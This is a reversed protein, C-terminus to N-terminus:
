KAIVKAEIVNSIGTCGNADTVAVSYSGASKVVISPSTEGGPSWKFTGGIDENLNLNLSDGEFFELPGSSNIVPTPNKRVVVKFPSSSLVGGNEDIVWVKYEGSEYVTISRTTEATPSWLYQSGFSATLTVSSGACFVSPGEAIILTDLKPAQELILEPAKENEQKEEPLIEPEVLKSNNEIAKMTEANASSDIKISSPSISDSKIRDAETIPSTSISDGVIENSIEQITDAFSEVNEKESSLSDTVPLVSEKVEVKTSISDKVENSNRKITYPKLESTLIFHDEGGHPNHCETCNKKGIKSHAANKLVQKEDHCSLCLQPSEQLLLKPKASSHSGHCMSCNGSAVPGHVFNYKKNFDDHCSTCTGANLMIRNEGGHPNHCDTCNKNGIKSHMKNTLIDKAEHCFLCLQQGERILLKEIKAEHPHHCARCNGFAVPGHLVPYKTNFNDHCTYCLEPIPKILSNSFGSEHCSQCKEDNYPKHTYFEPKVAAAVLPVSDSSVTIVTTKANPNPVGDFFFSLVQFKREPTCGVFLLSIFVVSSFILIALKKGFRM